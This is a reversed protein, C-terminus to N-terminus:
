AEPLEAYKAAVEEASQETGLPNNPTLVMETKDEYGMNNKMLFIGAVPNIKGGQMYDAMQANIIDYATKLVEVSERPTTTNLGNAYRWLSRRDIRFAVAMGEVSPKMDNQECLKFYDMVRESVAQPNTMDPKKWEWMELSHKMYRTNEGPDAHPSQMWSSDPRKRKVVEKAADEATAIAKGKQAM